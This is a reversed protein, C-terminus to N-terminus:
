VAANRLSQEPFIVANQRILRLILQRNSAQIDSANRGGNEPLVSINRSNAAM